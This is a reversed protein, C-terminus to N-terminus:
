RQILWAIVYLLYIHVPYFVYFFYKDFKAFHGGRKGNYFILLLIAVGMMWQINYDTNVGALFSLLSFAALTLMQAWRWQRLFYFLIGLIVFLFGGEVALLNPIFSSIIFVVREPFTIQVAYILATVLIPLLILFFGGFIKGARKEKIGEVFLRIFFIYLATFFLSGFINNMLEPTFEPKLHTIPLAVSLAFDFFNMILFGFLLQLIYRRRNHTHYFGEATMFLFIPLALRGLMNFWIPVGYALFFQHLHDFVMFVLALYKLATGSLGFKQTKESILM